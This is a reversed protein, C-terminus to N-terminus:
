KNWESYDVGIKDLEAELDAIEQEKDAIGQKYWELDEKLKIYRAKIQPQSLEKTKTEIIKGSEIKLEGSKSDVMIPILMLLISSIIILKKM